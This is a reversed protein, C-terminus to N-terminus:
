VKKELKCNEIEIIFQHYKLKSMESMVEIVSQNICIIFIYFINISIHISITDWLWSLM